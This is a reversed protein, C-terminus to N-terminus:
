QQNDALPHGADILNFLRNLIEPMCAQEAYDEITGPDVDAAGELDGRMARVQALTELAAPSEPLRTAAANATRAALDTDGADLAYAALAASYSSDAEPGALELAREAREIAEDPRGHLFALRALRAESTPGPSRRLLAEFASSAEDYHGLELQADGLAALAEDSNPDEDYAQQAVALAEPFEHRGLHVAALATLTPSYRPNLDLAERLPVEATDFADFDGSLRGLALHAVALNTRSLYDLDDRESRASWHDIQYDIAELDTPTPVSPATDRGVGGSQQSALGWFALLAAALLLVATPKPFAALRKLM